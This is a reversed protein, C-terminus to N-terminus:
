REETINRLNETHNTKDDEGMNSILICTNDSYHIFMNGISWDSTNSFM